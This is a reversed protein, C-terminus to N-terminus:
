HLVRLEDLEVIKEIKNQIKIPRVAGRLKTLKWLQLTKALDKKFLKEVLEQGM